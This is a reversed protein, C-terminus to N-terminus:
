YPIRLMGVTMINLFPSFFSATMPATGSVVNFVQMSFNKYIPSDRYFGKGPILISIIKIKCRSMTLSTYYVKDAGTYNIDSYKNTIKKLSLKLKHIIPVHLTSNNVKM